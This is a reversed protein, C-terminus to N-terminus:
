GPCDKEGNSPRAFYLFPFRSEVITIPFSAIVKLILLILSRLESALPSSRFDIGFLMVEKLHSNLYIILNFTIDGIFYLTDGQKVKSELNNLIATNMENVNVFPRNCYKIINKHSLHYDATFWIMFNGKGYLQIRILM